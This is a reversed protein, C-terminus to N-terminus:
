YGLLGHYSDDGIRRRKGSLNRPTLTFGDSTDWM